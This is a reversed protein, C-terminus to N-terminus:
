GLLCKLFYTIILKAIWPTAFSPVFALFSIRDNIFLADYGYNQKLYKKIKDYESALSSHSTIKMESINNAILLGQSDTAFSVLSRCENGFHFHEETEIINNVVALAKHLAAKIDPNTINNCIKKTSTIITKINILNQEKCESQLLNLANWLCQITGDVDFGGDITTEESTDVNIINLVRAKVEFACIIGLLYEDYKLNIIQGLYYIKCYIGKKDLETRLKIAFSKEGSSLVFHKADAKSVIRDFIIENYTAALLEDDTYIVNYIIIM